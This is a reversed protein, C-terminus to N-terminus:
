DYTIGQVCTCPHSPLLTLDRSSTFKNSENQASHWQHQLGDSAIRPSTILGLNAVTVVSTKLLHVANTLTEHRDHSLCM